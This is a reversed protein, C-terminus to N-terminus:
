CLCVFLNIRHCMNYISNKELATTYSIIKETKLKIVWNGTNRFNQRMKRLSPLSVLFDSLYSSLQSLFHLIVGIGYNCNM